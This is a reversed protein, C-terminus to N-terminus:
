PKLVKVVAVLQQLEEPSLRALIDHTKAHQPPRSLLDGPECDLADALSELSRHSYGIESNELQSITPEALGSRDALQAQTLDRFERWEKIFNRRPLRRPAAPRPPRAMRRDDLLAASSAM